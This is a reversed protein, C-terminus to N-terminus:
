FIRDFFNFISEVIRSFFGKEKKVAPQTDDATTQNGNDQQSIDTQSTENITNNIVPDIVNVTLPVNLEYEEFVLDTEVTLTDAEYDIPVHVRYIYADKAELGDFDLHNSTTGAVVDVTDPITDKLNVNYSFIEKLSKASVKVTLNKGREISNAATHMVEFREGDIPTITIEKQTSFSYQEQSPTRYTGNFVIPMRIQKNSIPTKFTKELLLVNVDQDAEAPEFQEKSMEYLELYIPADFLDSYLYGEINNYVKDQDCSLLVKVTVESGSEITDANTRVEASLEATQIALTSEATSYLTEVDPDDSLLTYEGFSTFDYTGTYLGRIKFEITIQEEPDIEETWTIYNGEVKYGAYAGNGKRIDGVEIEWPVRTSVKAKLPYDENNNIITMTYSGPQQSQLPSTLTSDFEFPVGAETLDITTKETALSVNEGRFNYFVEPAIIYEGYAFARVKYAIEKEKGPAIDGQWFLTNDELQQVGTSLLRLDLLNSIDNVYNVKRAWETGSNTISETIYIWMETDYDDNDDTTAEASHAVTPALKTIVINLGPYEKGSIYILKGNSAQDKNKWSVDPLCITLFTEYVCSGKKLTYGQSNRKLFLTNKSEKEDDEDPNREMVFYNVFYLDDEHEFTDGSHYWGNLDALAPDPLVVLAVFLSIIYVAICPFSSVGSSVRSHVRSAEGRLM